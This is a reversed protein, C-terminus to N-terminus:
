LVKKENKLYNILKIATNIYISEITEKYYEITSYESNILAGFKFSNFNHISYRECNYSCLIDIRETFHIFKYLSELIDLDKDLSLMKTVPLYTDDSSYRESNNYKVISLCNFINLVLKNLKKIDSYLIEDDFPRLLKSSLIILDDLIKNKVDNKRLTANIFAKNELLVKNYYEEYDKNNSYVLRFFNTYEFIGEKSNHIKLYENFCDIYKTKYFQSYMDTATNKYIGYSVFSKAFNLRIELDDDFPPMNNLYLTSSYNMYSHVNNRQLDFICFLIYSLLEEFEFLLRHDDNKGVVSIDIDSNFRSTNKVLSGYLFVLFDVEFYGKLFCICENIILNYFEVQKERLILSKDLDFKNIYSVRLDKYQKLFELRKNREEFIFNEIDELKIKEYNIDIIM